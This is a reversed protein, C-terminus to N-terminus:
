EVEANLFAIFKRNLLNMGNAATVIEDINDTPNM